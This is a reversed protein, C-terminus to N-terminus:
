VLRLAMAGTTSMLTAQESTSFTARGAVTYISWMICAVM